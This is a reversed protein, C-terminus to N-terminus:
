SKLVRACFEKCIRTMVKSQRLSLYYRSVKGLNLIMKQGDTRYPFSRFGSEVNDNQRVLPGFVQQFHVLIGKEGDFLFTVRRGLGAGMLWPAALM